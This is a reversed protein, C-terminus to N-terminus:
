DSYRTSYGGFNTFTLDKCLGELDGYILKSGVNMLILQSFITAISRKNIIIKYAVEQPFIIDAKTGITFIGSQARLRDNFYNPTFFCFGNERAQEVEDFVNEPLSDAEIWIDNRQEDPPIVFVAADHEVIGINFDTDVPITDADSFEDVLHQNEILSRKKYKVSDLAFYLAVLPSLSWDVLRTPMGYHQALALTDWNTQSTMSNYAHREANVKRFAKSARDILEGSRTSPSRALSSIIPWNANAQGRYATGHVTNTEKNIEVIADIYESLSKVIITKKYM